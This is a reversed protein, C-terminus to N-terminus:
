REDACYRWAPAFGRWAYRGANGPGSRVNFLLSDVPIFATWHNGMGWWLNLQTNGPLRLYASGLRSCRVQVVPAGIALILDGLRPQEQCYFALIDQVTHTENIPASAYLRCAIHQDSSAQVQQRFTVDTDYRIHYGQRGWQQEADQLLEQGPTIGHWCRTLDDCGQMMEQIAPHLPQLGGLAMAGVMSVLLSVLLSFTTRILIM